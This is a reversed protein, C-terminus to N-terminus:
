ESGEKRVDYYPDWSPSSEGPYGGHTPREAAPPVAPIEETIPGDEEAEPWIRALMFSQTLGVMIAQVQVGCSTEEGHAIEHLEVALGTFAAVLDPLDGLPVQDSLTRRIVDTAPIESDGNENIQGAAIVRAAARGIAQELTLTM